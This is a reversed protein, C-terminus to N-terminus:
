AKNIFPLLNRSALNDKATVFSGLLTKIEQSSMPQLVYNPAPITRSGTRSDIGIRIHWFQDTGLQQKISAIGNHTKPGKAFAVKVTGLELDLDDFAVFLNKPQIRYFSRVAQVAMGSQNMFTIPKVLYLSEQIPYNSTGYDSVNPDKATTDFVQTSFSKQAVLAQLKKKELFKEGFLTAIYDVFLFGANHRTKSYQEGNNGLGVLAVNTKNLFHSLPLSPSM